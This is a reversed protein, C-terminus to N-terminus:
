IPDATSQDWQLFEGDSPNSSVGDLETGWVGTTFYKAAWIVERKILLKQSVFESADADPDLPDDANVRDEETVEKHYAYKTCFYTPTNDIEYTGGASPTGP